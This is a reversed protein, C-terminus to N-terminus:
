SFDRKSRADIARSVADYVGPQISLNLGHSLCPIFFKQRDVYDLVHDVYEGVSEETWGPLDVAQDEIGGMITIQGGYQDVLKPIENSELMAGQWIDIGMEIMYPVLTAGYSDSHHVILQVGHDKYYGYVKKYPELLFEEFMDPAMLTSADSGWDDHHFLAEPKLYKCIAAAQELEAETIVELLDKVAEPEEYLDIMTETIECLHHLREFIGPLVYATRFVENTDVAEAQAVLPEWLSADDWCGLPPKVVDRWATIDSVVRHASDHLPMRGPQGAVQFTVGWEDVMRGDDDLTRDCVPNGSIMPALFEYQNVYRDPNGGRLCELLNQKKTLM